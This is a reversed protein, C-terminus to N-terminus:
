CGKRQRAIGPSPVPAPCGHAAPRGSVNGLICVASPTHHNCTNSSLLGPACQEPPVAM